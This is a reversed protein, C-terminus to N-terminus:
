DLPTLYTWPISCERDGGDPKVGFLRVKWMGDPLGTKLVLVTTGAKSLKDSTIYYFDKNLRFHQGEVKAAHNVPENMPAEKVTSTMSGGTPSTPPEPDVQVYLKPKDGIRSMLVDMKEHLEELSGGITQTHSSAESVETGLRTMWNEMAEFATYADDKKVGLVAWEKKTLRKGVLFKALLNTKTANEAHSQLLTGLMALAKDQGELLQNIAKDVANAWLNWAQDQDLESGDDEGEAVAYSQGEPDTGGEFHVYSFTRSPFGDRDYIMTEGDPAQYRRGFDVLQGEAVEAEYGIPCSDLYHASNTDPGSASYAKFPETEEYRAPAPAIDAQSQISPSVVWDKAVKDDEEGKALMGHFRGNKDVIVSIHNTNPPVEISDGANLIFGTNYQMPPATTGENREFVQVIYTQGLQRFRVHGGNFTPFQAKLPFVKQQAERFRYDFLLAGDKAYNWDVDSADDICHGLNRLAAIGDQAQENASKAIGEFTSLSDRVFNTLPEQPREEDEPEPGAGPEITVMVYDDMAKTFHFRVCPSGDIDLDKTWRIATVEELYDYSEGIRLTLSAPDSGDTPKLQELPIHSIRIYPFPVQGVLRIRFQRLSDKLPYSGDEIGSALILEGDSSPSDKAPKKEKATVKSLTTYVLVAIIGAGIAILICGIINLLAPPM